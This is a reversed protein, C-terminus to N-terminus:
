VQTARDREPDITHIIGACTGLGPVHTFQSSQICLSRDVHLLSRNVHTLSRNEHSLSRNVHVLSRNVRM